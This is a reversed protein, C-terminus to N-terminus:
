PQRPTAQLMDRANSLLKGAIAEPNVTFTGNAIAAKMNAVKQADVDPVRSLARQEQSRRNGTLAMTVGPHNAASPRHRM